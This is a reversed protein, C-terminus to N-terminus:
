KLKSEVDKLKLEVESLNKMEDAKMKKLEGESEKNEMQKNEERIKEDVTLLSKNKEFEMEAEKINKLKVDIAKIKEEISKKDSLLSKKIINLRIKLYDEDSKVAIHEEKKLNYKNIKIFATDEDTVEEVKKDNGALFIEIEDFSSLNEIEYIYLEQKSFKKKVNEDGMLKGDKKYYFYYDTTDISSSSISLGLELKKDEKSYNAFLLQYKKNYGFVEEVGIKTTLNKSAIDYGLTLKSTFFFGYTLLVCIFIGVVKQKYTVNKYKGRVKSHVSVVNELISKLKEHM